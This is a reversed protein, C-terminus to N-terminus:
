SHNKSIKVMNSNVARFFFEQIKERYPLKKLIVEPRWVGTLILGGLTMKYLAIFVDKGRLLPKFNQMLPLHPILFEKGIGVAEVSFAGIIVVASAAIKFLLTLDPINEDGKVKSYIVLWILLTGALRAFSTVGILIGVMLVLIIYAILAKYNLDKSKNVVWWLGGSIIMLLQGFRSFFENLLSLSIEADFLLTAIQIAVEIGFFIIPAFLWLLCGVIFFISAMVLPVIVVAVYLWNLFLHVILISVIGIAIISLGNVVGQRLIFEPLLVIFVIFYLCGLFIASDKVQFLARLLYSKQM